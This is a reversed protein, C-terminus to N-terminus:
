DEDTPWPVMGDIRQEDYRPYDPILSEPREFRQFNNDRISSERPVNELMRSAERVMGRGMGEVAAIRVIPDVVRVMRGVPNEFIVLGLVGNRLSDYSSFQMKVSQAIKTFTERAATEENRVRNRRVLKSQMQLLTELNRGATEFDLEKAGLDHYLIMLRQINTQAMAMTRGRALLSDTLSILEEAAARAEETEASNINVSNKIAMLTDLNGAAENIGVANENILGDRIAMLNEANERASRIDTGRVVLREKLALMDNVANTAADLDETEQILINKLQALGNIQRRVEEINNMQSILQLKLNALQELGSLALDSDITEAVTRRNINILQEVVRGADLTSAQQEVLRDQMSFLDDLTQAAPEALDRQSILLQQFGHLRQVANLSDEINVTAMAVQERFRSLSALAANTKEFNQQQYRLRALLSNADSVSDRAGVLSEMEIQMGTIEDRMGAIESKLPRVVSLHMGLLGAILVTLMMAWMHKRHAALQVAASSSTTVGQPIKLACRRNRVGGLAEPMLASALVRNGLLGIGNPISDFGPVRPAASRDNQAKESESRLRFLSGLNEVGSLIAM